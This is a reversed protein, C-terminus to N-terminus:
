HRTQRYRYRSILTLALGAAILILGVIVMPISPAGTRPLTTSVGGVVVSTATVGAARTTTTTTTPSTTASAGGTTVTPATTTTPGLTTTTPALTTTTLAAATTTTAPVTTTTSTSTTTTTPAESTTTPPETTTTTPAETTTASGVLGCFQVNSVDPINGQGVEPLAANSFTGSSQPPSFTAIVWDNGGKVIVSSVASSSSFTGGSATGSTITVVGPTGAAFVYTGGQFEFKAILESGPACGIAQTSLTTRLLGVGLVLAGVAVVAVGAYWPRFGSTARRLRSSLEM